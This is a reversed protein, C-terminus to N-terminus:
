RPTPRSPDPDGRRAAVVKNIATVAKDIWAGDQPSRTTMQLGYLRADRGNTLDLMPYTKVREDSKTMKQVGALYPSVRVTRDHARAREITDWAWTRKAFATRVEVGEDTLRIGVRFSRVLGIGLVGIGVIVVTMYVEVIGTVVSSAMSALLLVLLAILLVFRLAKARQFRPECFESGIGGSTV